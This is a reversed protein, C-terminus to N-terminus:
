RLQERYTEPTVGSWRKFAKIFASTDSYGLLFAIESVSLGRQRLYRDSLEYRVAELLQRHSTGEDKLRRSLTKSHMGLKDAIGEITPNGGRLEASVLEQVRRSLRGAQGSGALMRSAQRSFQACLQEDRGVVPLHLLESDFVLANHPQNFKVPAEFAQEHHSVDRPAAHTFRVEGPALGEATIKRAITVAASLIFEIDRPHLLEPHTPRLLVTALQGEVHLSLEFTDAVIRAFRTARVLADGLSASSSLVHGFVEYTEPQVNQGVRVGIGAGCTTEAGEWLDYLVRLSVSQDELATSNLTMGAAALVAPTAVGLRELAAILRTVM